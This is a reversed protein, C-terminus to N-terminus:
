GTWRRNPGLPHRGGTIFEGNLNRVPLYPGFYRVGHAGELRQRRPYEQRGALDLAQVQEPPLPEYRLAYNHVCIRFKESLNDILRQRSAFRVGCVLCDIGDVYARIFRRVGHARCMHVALAQRDTAPAGYELCYTNQVREIAQEAPTTWNTAAVAKSM